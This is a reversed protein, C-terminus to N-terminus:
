SKVEVFTGETTIRYTGGYRFGGVPLADETITCPCIDGEYKRGCYTCENM